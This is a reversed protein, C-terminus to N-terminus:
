PCNEDTIMEVDDFWVEADIEDLSSGNGGYTDFRVQEVYDIKDPDFCITGQTWDDEFPLEVCDSYFSSTCAIFRQNNPDTPTPTRYWFRLAAGGISDGQPIKVNQFARVRFTARTVDFHLSTSGSHAISPDVLIEFGPDPTFDSNYYYLDWPQYILPNSYGEFGGNRLVVGAECQSEEVFSFADITFEVTDACVTLNYNRHRIDVPAVIGRLWDPICLLYTREVGNTIPLRMVQIDNINIVLEDDYTSDGTRSGSYTVRLALNPAQDVSPIWATTAVSSTYCANSTAMVMSGNKRLRTLHSRIKQGTSRTSLVPAMALPYFVVLPRLRYNNWGTILLLLRQNIHYLIFVDQIATSRETALSTACSRAM